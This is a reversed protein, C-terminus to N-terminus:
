HEKRELLTKKLAIDANPFMLQRIASVVLGPYDRHIYHSSYPLVTLSSESQNSISKAYWEMRNNVILPYLNKQGIFVHVPVDPMPDFSRMEPYDSLVETRLLYLEAEKPTSKRSLSEPPLYKELTDKPMGKSDYETICDIFVMGAIENKYLHAFARIMAGGMSHGVLIYPPFLQAQHLLSHLETAM